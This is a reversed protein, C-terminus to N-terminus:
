DRVRRITDEFPDFEVEQKVEYLGKPIPKQKHEEHIIYTQDTSKIFKRDDLILLQGNILRHEHGSEGHMVVNTKQPKAEKPIQDTPIIDVDGHRIPKEYKM